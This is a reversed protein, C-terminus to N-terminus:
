MVISVIARMHRADFANLGVVNSLAIVFRRFSDVFIYSYRNFIGSSLHTVDWEGHRLHPIDVELAESDM